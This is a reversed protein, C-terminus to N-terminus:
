NLNIAKLLERRFLTAGETPVVLLSPQKSQNRYSETIHISGIVRTIEGLYSRLRATSPHLVPHTSDPWATRYTSHSIISGAAGADLEMPLDVGHMMLVLCLQNTRSGSTYFVSYTQNDSYDCEQKTLCHTDLPPKHLKLQNPQHSSRKSHCVHHIHGTKDCEHCIATCFRCDSVWHKGACHLFM